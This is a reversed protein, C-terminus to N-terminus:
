WAHGSHPPYAHTPLDDPITMGYNVHPLVSALGASKVHIIITCNLMYVM